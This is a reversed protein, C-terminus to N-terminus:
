NLIGIFGQRVMEELFLLLDTELSSCEKHDYEELMRSILTQLTIEQRCLNWVWLGTENLIRMENSDPNFLLPGGPEDARLIVDPNQLLRSASAISQNSM